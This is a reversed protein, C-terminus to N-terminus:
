IGRLDSITSEAVSSHKSIEYATKDTEFLLWEIKKKDAYM